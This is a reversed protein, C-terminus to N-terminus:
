KITVSPKGYKLEAGEITEGLKLKEKILNKDVKVTTEFEKFEIPLDDVSIVNVSPVPKRVTVKHLGATFSSKDMTSLSSAIYAKINDIKNEATKRRDSLSKEEAKLAAAYATENKIISLLQELKDTFEGEIGELTDAIMEPDLDEATLSAYDNAIEYLATM